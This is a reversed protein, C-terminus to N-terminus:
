MCVECGFFPRQYNPFLTRVPARRTHGITVGHGKRHPVKV